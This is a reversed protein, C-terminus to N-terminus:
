SNQFANQFSFALAQRYLVGDPRALILSCPASVGSPITCRLMGPSIIFVDPSKTDGFWVQLDQFFGDGYMAADDAQNPARASASLLTDDNVDDSPSLSRPLDWRHIVPAVQITVAPAPSSTPGAVSAIMHQPPAPVFFTHRVIDIGAITWVCQESCDVSWELVSANAPTSAPAPAYPHGPPFPSNASSLSSGRRRGGSTPEGHLGATSSTRRPTKRVKGGDASMDPSSTGAVSASSARTRGYLAAQANSHRASNYPYASEFDSSGTNAAAGPFGHPPPAFWSSSGSGGSGSSYSGSTAASTPTLSPTSPTSGLPVRPSAAHHIGVVEGMCSLFQSSGPFGAILDPVSQQAAAAYSAIPNTLVEFAVKQLQSVPDGLTEGPAVPVRGDETTLPAPSEGRNSSPTGGRATTGNEGRGGGLATSTKDVQRVIMVPSVVATAICQLVVPQNYYITASAGDPVPLANAPPRPLFPLSPM